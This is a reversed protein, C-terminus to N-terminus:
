LESFPKEGGVGFAGVFFHTKLRSKFTDVNPISRLELPLENWVTPLLVSLRRRRLKSTANISTMKPYKLRYPDLINTMRTTRSAGWSEDLPVIEQLYGPATGYVIKYAILCAKFDLRYSIPLIHCQKFYEMYDEQHGHINFIFRVCSNLTKQLGRLVRDPLGCYLINSYDIRSVILQKVLMIKTQIDFCKQLHWLNRLILGCQKRVNNVQRELTLNHDLLIGLTKGDAGSCESPYIEAGGFNIVPDFSLKSLSSRKGLLIFETKAENCKLWQGVMWRKVKALCEEIDVKAESWGTSDTPVLSVYLQSDDAYLKIRLGYPEVIDQVAEIYLLFLIPGLLSGQPVGCLLALTESLCDGVSVRFSRSSLYSEFWKLPVGDVGFRKQLVEM